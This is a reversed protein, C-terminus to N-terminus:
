TLVLAPMVLNVLVHMRMVQLRRELRCPVLFLLCEISICPRKVAPASGRSVHKMMGMLSKCRQDHPTYIICNVPQYGTSDSTFTYLHAKNFRAPSESSGLLRCITLTRKGLGPQRNVPDWFGLCQPAMEVKASLITGVLFPSNECRKATM